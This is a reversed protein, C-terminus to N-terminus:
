REIVLKAAITTVSGDGHPIWNSICCAASAKVAAAISPHLASKSGSRPAAGARM